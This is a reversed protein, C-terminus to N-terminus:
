IELALRECYENLLIESNINENKLTSLKTFEKKLESLQYTVLKGLIVKCRDETTGNFARGQKSLNKGYQLRGSLMLNLNGKNLDCIEAVKKQSIKHETIFNRLEDLYIIQKSM